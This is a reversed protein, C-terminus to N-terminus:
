QDCFQGVSSIIQFPVRSMQRNHTKRTHFQTSDIRSLLFSRWRVNSATFVFFKAGVASCDGRLTIDFHFICDCLCRCLIAHLLRNRSFRLKLSLIKRSPNRSSAAQDLSYEKGYKITNKRRELPLVISFSSFRPKCANDNANSMFMSCGVHSELLACMTGIVFAVRNEM